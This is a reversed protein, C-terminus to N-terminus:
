RRTGIVLLYERPIAVRGDTRFQECYEVYARHFEERRAPELSAVMAKFVKFRLDADARTEETGVHLQLDLPQAAAMATAAGAPVVLTTRDPTVAAARTIVIGDKELSEAISKAVTDTADANVIELRVKSPPQPKFLIGFFTAMMLPGIFVWFIAEPSKSTLRVHNLAIHVVTM